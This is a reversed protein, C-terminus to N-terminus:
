FQRPGERRVLQQQINSRMANMTDVTGFTPMTVPPTVAPANIIPTAGGVRKAASAGSAAQVLSAAPSLITAATKATNIINPVTIGSGTLGLAASTAADYAAVEAASAGMGFAIDGGFSGVGAGVEAAGKATAAAEPAAVEAGTGM